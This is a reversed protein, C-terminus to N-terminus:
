GFPRRPARARELLAEWEDPLQEPQSPRLGTLAGALAMLWAMGALFAFAVAPPGNSPLNPSTALMATGLALLGYALVGLGDKM